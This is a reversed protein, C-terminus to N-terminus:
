IWPISLICGTVLILSVIRYLHRSSTLISSCTIHRVCVLCFLIYHPLPDHHVYLSPTPTAYLILCGAQDDSNVRGSLLCLWRM